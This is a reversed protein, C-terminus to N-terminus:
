PVYIRHGLIQHLPRLPGGPVQLTGRAANMSISSPYTPKLTLIRNLLGGNGTIVWDGPRIHTMGKPGFHTVPGSMATARSVAAM